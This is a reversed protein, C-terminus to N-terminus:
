NGKYQYLKEGNQFRELLKVKREYGSLVMEGRQEYYLDNKLLEAVEERTPLKTIDLLEANKVYRLLEVEKKRFSSIAIDLLDDSESLAARNWFMSNGTDFLPAMGIVKLTHADRLVGFNNFHRDTNTLVFDSLIQYELFRRVEEEELGNRTCVYIFHEFESMDNRKKVSCAMDYASIFEVDETAFDQCICGLGEEGGSKTISCLRYPTYPMSGQKEHLLTAIVENISQQFSNGYNGKILYRLGEQIVWKKQLEGQVSASPYFSTRNRFDLIEKARSFDDGFQLEGIEDKFDNTFLSVDKWKLMKDVPNIWYHDSLSLGLNWVLYEQTTFIENQMLIRRINGQGIPVARRNWWLKLNDVSYSTGPPLLEKNTQKGISAIGGTKEDLFLLTVIDDRHMLYFLKENAM